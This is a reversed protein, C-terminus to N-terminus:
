GPMWNRLPPLSKLLLWATSINIFNIDARPCPTRLICQRFLLAIMEILAAACRKRRQYSSSDATSEAAARMRVLRSRLQRVPQVMRGAM